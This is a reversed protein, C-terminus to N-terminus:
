LYEIGAVTSRVDAMVQNICVGMSLMDFFLDFVDIVWTPQSDFSREVTLDDM